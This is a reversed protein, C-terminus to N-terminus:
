LGDQKNASYALSVYVECNGSVDSMVWKYRDEIFLPASLWPWQLAFQLSGYSRPSPAGTGAGLVPLFRDLSLARTCPQRASITTNGVSSGPNYSSREWVHLSLKFGRLGASSYM